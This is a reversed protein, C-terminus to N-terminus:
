SNIEDIIALSKLSKNPFAHFQLHQVLANLLDRREMRSLQLDQGDQIRNVAITMWAPQPKIGENPAYEAVINLKELNLTIYGGWHVDYGLQSCLGLTFQIPHYSWSSSKKLNDWQEILFTFLANEPQNEQLSTSLLELYFQQIQLIVPHPIGMEINLIRTEKVRNLGGDKKLNFVIELFNGPQFYANHTKSKQVGQIIFSLLGCDETFVKAIVSHDTYPIKRLVLARTKTLM